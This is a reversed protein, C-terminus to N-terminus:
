QAAAGAAIAQLLMWLQLLGRITWAVTRIWNTGVLRALAASDMGGALRRHQPVSFLVTAGWCIAVLGLGTWVAWAPVGAPRHAMLLLASVLELGMLPGVIWTIRSAHAAHFAAFGQTVHTMLPYHVLQILWIVGLMAWTAAAGALLTTLPNM